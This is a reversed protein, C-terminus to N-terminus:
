RSLRKLARKTFMSEKLKPNLDVDSLKVTTINNKKDEDHSRMVMTLPYYYKDIKKVDSFELTRELVGDEDYYDMSIPAYTNKHVKAIIKGWVVAADEYPILEIVYSSDDESLLNNDYDDTMSSEKVMDDNSFDSGMWSQMMMSAPIKIIKEIRPIYQWMQKDLKLFTIGKDKKPYTLLIFSKSTGQNWSHMKMTRLGRSTQIEMTISQSANVARTNNEMKKVIHDANGAILYLPSLLLTLTSKLLFDKM